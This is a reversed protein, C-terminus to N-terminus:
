DIKKRNFLMSILKKPTPPNGRYFSMLTYVKGALLVFLFATLAVILLSIIGEL